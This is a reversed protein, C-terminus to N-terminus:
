FIIETVRNELLGSENLLSALISRHCIKNDSGYGLLVVGKAGSLGALYELREIIKQLNVESVEIIYRKSFEEFDIISDRKARFLENSPALNKFHISTDSYKGILESPKINRIIFIPLYGQESFIKLTIPSVFSTKIELKSKM